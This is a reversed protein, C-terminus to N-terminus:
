IDVISKNTEVHSIITALMETLSVVKFKFPLEHTISDSVYISEIPSKMIRQISDSSLVAHTASAHVQLAGHVKLASAVKCLTGATDVMDDVIICVKGYPNGAVQINDVVNARTRTKYCFIVNPIGLEKAYRTARKSGGMDPAVIAFSSKIDELSAGMNVKIASLVDVLNSKLAKCMVKDAYVHDVPVNFFGQIQDSHLDITILRNLGVAELMDVIAKSAISVRPKDKRDQRAWGFYPVAAIISSASARKAADIALALEMFSKTDTLSQILVVDQGRICQNFQPQFEGDSFENLTYSVTDFNGTTLINQGLKGAHSLPIVKFNNM